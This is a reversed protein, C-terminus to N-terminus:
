NLKDKVSKTDNTVERDIKERAKGKEESTSAERRDKMLDDVEKRSEPSIYNPINM